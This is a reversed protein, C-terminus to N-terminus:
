RLFKTDLEKETMRIIIPRGHPCRHPISCRNLMAIMTKVEEDSMSDGAKISSKCAIIKIIDDNINEVEPTNETEDISNIIEEVMDQIDQHSKLKGAFYPVGTVKFIHPGFEEIYIGFKQFLEIRNLLSEAQSPELEIIEPILLNQVQLSNKKFQSKLQEYNIREWATHQDIVLIGENDEAVIYKKKWQFRPIISGSPKEGEQKSLEEWKPAAFTFKTVRALDINDLYKTPSEKVKYVKARKESSYGTRGIFPKSMSKQSIEINMVPSTNSIEDKIVKSVIEHIGNQNVFRVEKKTPHVNVDVLEPSIGINLVCAPYRDSPIFPHYGERVAHLLLPAFVPRNNVFLYIRKNNSFSINPSTLFGTLSIFPNKFNVPSLGESNKKGLIKSIREKLSSQVLDFIIKKDAKLVFSVDARALALLEVTSIIQRRETVPSKLFKKRAPVNYFLDEVKVTTGLARAAAEPENDEYIKYLYAEDSEEGRSIILAKSVAAISPLAEGRFGMTSIQSLDEIRSIKSTAHRKVALKLEDKSMGRGDDSVELYNVGGGLFTVNIRTAGADLSNEVLEKIVSAPREVVEGAAIKAILEEPLLKIKM